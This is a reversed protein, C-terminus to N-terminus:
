RCATVSGGFWGGPVQRGHVMDLAPHFSGANQEADGSAGPWTGIECELLVFLFFFDIQIRFVCARFIVNNQLLAVKFRSCNFFWNASLFM